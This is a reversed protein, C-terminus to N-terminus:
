IRAYIIIAAIGGVRVFAPPEPAPAKRFLVGALFGIIGM